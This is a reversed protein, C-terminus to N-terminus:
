LQSDAPHILESARSGERMEPTPRIRAPTWWESSTPKLKSKNVEDLCDM